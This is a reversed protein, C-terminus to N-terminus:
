GASCDDTRRSIAEPPRAPPQGRQARRTWAPVPVLTCPGLYTYRSCAYEGGAVDRPAWPCPVVAPGATCPPSAHYARPMRATAHMHAPPPCTPDLPSTCWRVPVLPSRQERLDVLHFRVIDPEMDQHHCLRCPPDQPQCDHYQTAILTTRASASRPSSARVIEVDADLTSSLRCAAPPSTCPLHSRLTPSTPFPQPRALRSPHQPIVLASHPTTM